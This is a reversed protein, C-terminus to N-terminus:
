RRRKIVTGQFYELVRHFPFLLMSYLFYLPTIQREGKGLGFRSPHGVHGRLLHLFPLLLTGRFLNKDAWFLLILNLVQLFFVLLTAEWSIGNLICVFTHPHYRQLIFLILYILYRILFHTDVSLCRDFNFCMCGM